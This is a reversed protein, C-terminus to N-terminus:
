LEETTYQSPKTIKTAVNADIKPLMGEGEEEKPTLNRLLEIFSRPLFSPLFSLAFPGPQSTAPVTHSIIAPLFHTSAGRGKVWIGSHHFPM